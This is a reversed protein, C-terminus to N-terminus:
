ENLDQIKKERLLNEKALSHPFLSRMLPEFM